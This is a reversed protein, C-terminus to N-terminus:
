AVVNLSNNKEKKNNLANKIGWNFFFFNKGNTISWRNKKNLKFSFFIYWTKGNKTERQQQHDVKAKETGLM